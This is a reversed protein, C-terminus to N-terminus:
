QHGHDAATTNPLMNSSITQEAHFCAAAKPRPHELSGDQVYFIVILELDIARLVAVGRVDADGAGVADARAGNGVGLAQLLRPSM